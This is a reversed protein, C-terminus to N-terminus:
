PHMQSTRSQEIDFIFSATHASDDLMLQPMTVYQKGTKKFLGSLIALGVEIENDDAIDGQRLHIAEWLENSPFESALGTFSIDKVRYQQGAHITLQLVRDDKSTGDSVHPDAITPTVQAKLFGRHQLGKRTAYTSQKLVKSEELPHGKVFETWEQLEKEPLGLDGRFTVNRVVIVSQAVSLQSMLLVAVVANKVVTAVRWM